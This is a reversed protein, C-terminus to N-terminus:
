GLSISPMVCNYSHLLCEGMVHCFQVCGGGSVGAASYGKGWVVGQEPSTPMAPGPGAWATTAPWEVPKRSSTPRLIMVFSASGAVHSPV